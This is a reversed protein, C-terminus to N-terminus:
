TDEKTWRRLPRIVYALSAVQLVQASDAVYDFGAADFFAYNIGTGVSSHFSIGDFGLQRIVDSFLQSLVYSQREEPPVPVSFLRDISLLLWYDDLRKDSLSFDTISVQSFDAVVLNRSARFEGVSVVHGPHPRVESLATEQNSAAYLFSVGARNMRGSAAVVPPAAGLFPGEYPRYFWADRPREFVECDREAFGIRARHVVTGAPVERRLFTLHPKLLSKAEPEILYPNERRTRLLLNRFRQENGDVLSELLMNPEGDYYGAHLSIPVTETEYGEEIAPLIADEIDAPDLGSNFNLISNESQFLAWLGDGGWHPNYEWENFYKRILARITAILRQDESDLATVGELKCVSCQAVVAGAEEILSVLDKDRSCRTCVTGMQWGMVFFTM